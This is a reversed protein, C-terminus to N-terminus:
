TEGFFVAWALYKKAEVPLEHLCHRLFTLDTPDSVKQNIMSEEIAKM